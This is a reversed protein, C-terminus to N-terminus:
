GGIPVIAIEGAAHVEPIEHIVIVGPGSGKRYTPHTLGDAGHSGAAWSDLLSM